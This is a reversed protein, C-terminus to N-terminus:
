KIVYEVKTIQINIIIILITINKIIIILPNIAM